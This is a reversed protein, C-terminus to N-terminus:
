RRASSAQLLSGLLERYKELPPPVGNPRRAEDDFRRLEVADVFCAQAEFAAREAAEMPGGQLELSRLSASSLRHHYGPDTGCLWRKAAVHLRIPETVTPPFWRALFRSGLVEHELDAKLFGPADEHEGLLLHGIDHLLAAVVLADSARAARAREACQLAHDLQTVVEEYHSDGRSRYLEFLTEVPDSDDQLFEDLGSDRPSHDHPALDHSSIRLQGARAPTVRFRAARDTGLQRHDGEEALARYNLLLARPATARLGPLSRHPTAHHFWVTEGALLEVAEWHLGPAVAPALNGNGGPLRPARHRGSAFELGGNRGRLPDVAVLCLLTGSGPGAVSRAHPDHGTSTRYGHDLQERHLVAPEGLLESAIPQLHDLLQNRLGEHSEHFPQRSRLRSGGRSSESHHLIVGPPLDQHEDAWSALRALLEPPLLPRLRIWGREEFLRRATADLM